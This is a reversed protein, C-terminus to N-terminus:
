ERGAGDMPGTAESTLGDSLLLGEIEVIGAHLNALAQLYAVNYDVLARQVLILDSPNSQIQRYSLIEQSISVGQQGARGDNGIEAKSAGDKSSESNRGLLRYLLKGTVSPEDAVLPGGRLLVLGFGLLWHLIRNSRALGM